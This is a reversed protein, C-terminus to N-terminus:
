HTINGVIGSGFGLSESVRELILKKRLIKVKRIEWKDILPLEEFRQICNPLSKIM